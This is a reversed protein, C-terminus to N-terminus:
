AAAAKIHSFKAANPAVQTEAPQEIIYQHDAPKIYLDIIYIIYVINLCYHQNIGNSHTTTYFIM